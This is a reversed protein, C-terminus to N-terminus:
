LKIKEIDDVSIWAAMMGFGTKDVHFPDIKEVNELFILTCFNKDILESSFSLPLCIKEGYEKIIEVIKWESM